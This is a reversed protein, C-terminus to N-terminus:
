RLELLKDRENFQSLPVYFQFINQFWHTFDDYKSKGSFKPCKRRKELHTAMVLQRPSKTLQRRAHDVDAPLLTPNTLPLTGYPYATDTRLGGILTYSSEVGAGVTGLGGAASM